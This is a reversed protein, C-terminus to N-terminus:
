RKIKPTYQVHLSRDTERGRKREREGEKGIQLNQSPIDDVRQHGLGVLDMWQRYSFPPQQDSSSALYGWIM